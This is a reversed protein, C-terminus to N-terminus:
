GLYRAAAVGRAFSIRSADSSQVRWDAEKDHNFWTFARVEPRAALRAFFDTIWAAKNGGQEASGVEALMLPKASLARLQGISPGFVQEFSQWGSPATTGFNYGDLGTWDVYGDGPYLGALPVSGAFVVNPSWVWTVNTAGATRFLSVVRRYAAVYDGARNGNVAESWPYWTGNMEHAFRLLLPRGWAKIGGAWRRILADHRGATIASLRYAPQNAGASYDWPEWTLMPTSGRGVVLNAFDAPFDPTHAWDRYDMVVAPRKGASGAYADLEPVMGLAGDVTVGTYVKGSPPVVAAEATGPLLLGGMAVVATMTTGLVLARGTRRRWSRMRDEVTPRRGGGAPEILSGV